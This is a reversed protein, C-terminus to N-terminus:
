ATQAPAPTAARTRRAGARATTPGTSTPAREGARTCRGTPGSPWPASRTAPISSAGTMAGDQALRLRSIRATVVCGGDNIGPPTPCVDNDAGPQGWRPATGGPEADYSYSVYIDPTAPFDPDLVLGLLGRDWINFVNTRLDAVVTPTGDEVGDFVKVVGRKEAVFVRGDSSFEVATPRVLRDFVVYDYFGAPLDDCGTMGLVAITLATMLAM